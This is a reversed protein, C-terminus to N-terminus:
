LNVIKYMKQKKNQYYLTVGKAELKISHTTQTVFYDKIEKELIGDSYGGFLHEQKFFIFICHKFHEVAPEPNPVCICNWVISNMYLTYINSGKKFSVLFDKWVQQRESGWMKIQRLLINSM